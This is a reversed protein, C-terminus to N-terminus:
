ECKYVNTFTLPRAWTFKRISLLGQVGILLKTVNMVNTLNRELTFERTSLSIRGGGSYKRVNM